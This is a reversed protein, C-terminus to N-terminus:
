KARIPPGLLLKGPEKRKKSLKFAAQTVQQWREDEKRVHLTALHDGKELRDGSRVHLEIGVAHDIEDSAKARGAGLELAVQALAYADISEVYGAGSSLVDIRKKTQPLRAPHDIVRPDGGQLEVMKKFRELAAGSSLAEEARKRADSRQSTLKSLLLMEEVLVLTLETTDAPGEGRLIQISEKVELANGITTGLPVDMQTLRAVAPTGLASSVQVLSRALARADAQNTMFAGRGVKVDLVLGHLGEALKKSLISAVILPRCAVTSTVDRLSYIRRDAPAIDETQGMIAAGAASVTKEFQRQTLRTSYGPISELKDLTGGTHGLGRGAIMPVRLGCAAALPALPLSIKDGVGGTSHKDIRPPGSATRALVTGSHLMAETLALMEEDSLGHIYSAMLWATMQYDTLKGSQFSEILWHIDSPSHEKGDRKDAILHTPRLAM